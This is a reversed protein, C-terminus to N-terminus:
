VVMSTYKCSLIPQIQRNDLAFILTDPIKEMDAVLSNPKHRPDDQGFPVFFINRRGLLAGISKANAALGDNTAIAIALPLGNRLHSKAAMLVPTDTIGNALKSATNGTCPAILLIDCLKGPGIPEAKQITDIIEDCDAAEMVQGRWYAATGFRSDMTRVNDSFVPLIEAGSLRLQKMQGIARELTCFSGTLAFCIRAGSLENAM